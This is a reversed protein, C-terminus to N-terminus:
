VTSLHLDNGLKMAKMDGFAAQGVFEEFALTLSKEPASTVLTKERFVRM